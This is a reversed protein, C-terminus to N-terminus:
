LFYINYKRLPAKADDPGYVVPLRTLSDAVAYGELWEETSRGRRRPM